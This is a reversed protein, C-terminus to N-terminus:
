EYKLSDIPPNIAAHYSQWSVTFIAIVLTSLGALAFIWWAIETHFAFHQSWKDMAYWAIPCAILNAIIVWKIFDKSLLAILQGISAGLVKRVGIEKFRRKTSFSALGYLGLCAIFIALLSFYGMLQFTRNESHYIQEFRNDMFHYEYAWFPYINKWTKEIFALTGSIDFSNIKVMMEWCEPYHIVFAVPHIDEYLSEFHFDKVVGVITRESDPWDMHIKKGVPVTPLELLNVASENLIIASSADTEFQQSFMRGHLADDIGITKFYDFGVHVVRMLLRDTMGDHKFHCWNTLSGSPVRDASSISTIQGNQLLTNKFREYKRRNGAEHNQLIVIHEKDFGLKKNQIFQLQRFMFISSIILVVSITFQMVVLIRNFSLKSKGFGAIGKIVRAPQISSIYLAPYSGAILGAALVMGIIGAIMTKNLLATLSLLKGTLINFVPLCLGAIFFALMLAFFLVVISESFFQGAIQKRAAGVVKRIGVEVARAAANATLLYIYNFCAILLILVGIASFMFIYNIDGQPRIDNDLHASHLHVDKLNQLTIVPKDMDDVNISKGLLSTSKEEFASISFKEQFLGYVLFNKWGWNQMLSAGFVTDADVLTAIFNCKFHSDAPVDFMVGTITYDREGGVRLVEGIPNKNGFYKHAISETIVITSPQILATEPDGTILPFSFIEFFSEDAYIFDKENFRDDKYRVQINDRPLLRTAERVEPFNDLLIQSVQPALNPAVHTSNINNDILRYIHDANKHFRDFSIEDQIYLLLLICVAMGIALGSIKIFSYGKQKKLNRLATKINMRFMIMRWFLMNSIAQPLYVLIQMWYWVWARTRGKEERWDTYIEEFDGSLGEKESSNLIARLLKEAIYPPRPTKNWLDTM